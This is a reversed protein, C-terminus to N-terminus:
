RDLQNGVGAPSTPLEQGSEPLAAGSFADAPLSRPDKVFRLLRGRRARRRARASTLRRVSTTTSPPRARQASAHSNARDRGHLVSASTTSTWNSVVVVDIKPRSLTAPHQRAYTGCWRSRARRQTRGSTARALDAITVVSRDSTTIIVREDDLSDDVVNGFPISQPHPIAQARSGLSPTVDTVTHPRTLGILCTVRFSCGTLRPIRCASAVVGLSRVRSQGSGELFLERM